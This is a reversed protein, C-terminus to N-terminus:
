KEAIGRHEEGVKQGDPTKFGLKTAHRVCAIPSFVFAVRDLYCGLFKRSITIILVLNQM